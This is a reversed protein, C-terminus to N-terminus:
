IGLLEKKKAEFEEKTLIGQDLLNKFKLIEDASSLTPQSNNIQIKNIDDISKNVANIFPVLTKKNVREIKMRTAGDWIEIEGLVLGKKYVISNIKNIPIEVQRLGFFMGKDLFLIRKNTSVILWRNGKLFGSIAHTIKEDNHIINPLEKVEKKTGFFDPSNFGKTYAGHM